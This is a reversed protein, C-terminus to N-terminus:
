LIYFITNNAILLSLLIESKIELLLKRLKRLKEEIDYADEKTKTANKLIVDSRTVVNMAKDVISM